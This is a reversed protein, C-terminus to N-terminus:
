RRRGFGLMRGSTSTLTGVCVLMLSMPEPVTASVQVNQGFHNALIAFDEFNTVKDFNFNGQGWLTDFKGFNNALLAFDQFNVIGNLDGDGPLATTLTLDSGFVPVLTMDSNVFIGNVQDFNGVLSAFTMVAFSDFYDPTFNNILSVALTGDLAAQGTVNLQDYATGAELGGIEVELTGTATQTYSGNVTMIGPSDGPTVTSGDNILDGIISGIDVTGGNSQFNGVITEAALTGTTMNFAGGGTLDISQANVSSGALNLIGGNFFINAANLMGGDVTIIGTTNLTINGALVNLIGNDLLDITATGGSPQGIALEGGVAFTSDTVSISGTGQVDLADEIDISGGGSLNVTGAAGPLGVRMGPTPAATADSVLVSGGTEQVLTGGDILIANATNLESSNVVNISAGGSIRLEDGVELNVPVDAVTPEISEGLTLSGGSMSLDARGTLLEYTQATQVGNFFVNGAEIELVDSQATRGFDVRYTGAENFRVLDGVDPPPSGSGSQVTWRNPVFFNGSAPDSWEITDATLAKAGTVISPSFTQFPTGDTPFDAPLLTIDVGFSIISLAGNGNNVYTGSGLLVPFAIETAPLAGNNETVPGLGIGPIIADNGTGATSLGNNINDQAGAIALANGDVLTGNDRFLKFGKIFFGMLDTSEAPQVLELVASTVAVDGSGIVDFSIGGLGATANTPDLLNAYAEWTGAAPDVDLSLQLEVQAVSISSVILFLALALTWQAAAVLWKKRAFVM